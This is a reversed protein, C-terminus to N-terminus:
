YLLSPKIVKGACKNTKEPFLPNISLLEIGQSVKRGDSEAPALARVGVLCWGLSCTSLRSAKGRGM